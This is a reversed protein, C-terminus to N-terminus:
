WVPHHPHNERGEVLGDVHVFEDAAGSVAVLVSRWSPALASPLLRLLASAVSASAAHARAEAPPPQRPDPLWAPLLSSRSALTQPSSVDVRVARAM